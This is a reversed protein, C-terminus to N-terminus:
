LKMVSDGEMPSENPGRFTLDRGSFTGPKEDRPLVDTARM